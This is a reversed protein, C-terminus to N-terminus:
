DRETSAALAESSAARRSRSSAGARSAACAAESSFASFSRNSFTRSAFLSLNLGYNHVARGRIRNSHRRGGRAGLRTGNALVAHLKVQTRCPLRPHQAHRSKQESSRARM